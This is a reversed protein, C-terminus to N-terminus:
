GKRIVLSNYLDIRGQERLLEYINFKSKRFDRRPTETGISVELFPQPDVDDPDIMIEVLMKAGPFSESIAQLCDRFDEVIGRRVIFEEADEKVSVHSPWQLADQQLNATRRLIDVSTQAFLDTQESDSITSSAMTDETDTPWRDPRYLNRPACDFAPVFLWSAEGAKSVVKATTMNGLIGCQAQYANLASTKLDEILDALNPNMESLRDGTYKIVIRQSNRGTAPVTSFELPISSTDSM